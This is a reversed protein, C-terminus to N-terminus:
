PGNQQNGPWKHPWILIYKKGKSIQDHKCYNCFILDLLHQKEDFFTIIIIDLLMTLMKEFSRIFCGISISLTDSAATGGQKVPCFCKIRGQDSESRCSAPGVCKLRSSQYPPSVAVHLDMTSRFGNQVQLCVVQNPQVTNMSLLRSSIVMIEVAAQVPLVVQLCNASKVRIM